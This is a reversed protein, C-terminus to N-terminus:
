FRLDNESSALRMRGRNFSVTLRWKLCDVIVSIKSTSFDSLMRDNDGSDPWRRQFGTLGFELSRIGPMQGSRTLFYWKVDFCVSCLYLGSVTKVYEAKQTPWAADCDCGKIWIIQMTKINRVEIYIYLSSNVRPWLTMFLGGCIYSAMLNQTLCKWSKHCRVWWKVVETMYWFCHTSDFFSPFLHWWIGGLHISLLPV